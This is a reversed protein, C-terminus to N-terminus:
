FSCGRKEIYNRFFKNNKLFSYPNYKQIDGCIKVDEGNDLYKCGTHSYYYDRGTDYERLVYISQGYQKIGIEHADKQNIWVVYGKYGNNKCHLISLANKIARKEATYNKLIKQATVDYLVRDGTWFDTEWDIEHKNSVLRYKGKVDMYYEKDNDRSRERNEHNKAIERAGDAVYGIGLVSAIFGSFIGM